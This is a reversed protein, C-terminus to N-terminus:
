AEVAQLCLTEPVKESRQELHKEGKGWPVRESDTPLSYKAKSSPGGMNLCSKVHGTRSKTVGGLWKEIVPSDGAIASSELVNM